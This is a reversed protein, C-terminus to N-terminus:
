GKEAQQNILGQENIILHERTAFNIIASPTRYKFIDKININLVRTLKIFLEILLLSNGGIKFFDNHISIHEIKQKLVQAYM